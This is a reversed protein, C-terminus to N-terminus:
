RSPWLMTRAAYLQFAFKGSPAPVSSRSNSNEPVLPSRPPSFGSSSCRSRRSGGATCSRGPRGRPGRRARGRLEVARMRMSVGGRRGAPRGAAPRTRRRRGDGVAVLAAVQGEAVQRARLHDLERGALLHGREHLLLPTLTLASVLAWIRSPLPPAVSSPRVLFCRAASARRVRRQPEVDQALGLEVAAPELADAARMTASVNWRAISPLVNEITRSGSTAVASPGSTPCTGSPRGAATRTRVPLRLQDVREPVSANGAERRAAPYGGASPRGPDPASVRRRRPPARAAHDVADAVHQAM